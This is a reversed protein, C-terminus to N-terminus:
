KEYGRYAPLCHLFVADPKAKSFLDSNVQYKAFDQIRKDRDAEMGMSIWTDTYVVDADSIAAAPDTSIDICSGTISAIKQAAQVYKKDCNYGAPTAISINV